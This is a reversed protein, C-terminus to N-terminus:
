VSLWTPGDISMANMIGGALSVVGVIMAMAFPRTAAMRAAVWGGFFVQGVHALLVVFFAQTPLTAVYANMQAPDMMDMGEPMPFLVRGNLMILAMNWAMGVILGVFVALLNRAM